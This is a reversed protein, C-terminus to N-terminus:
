ALRPFLRQANAGLIKRKASQTLGPRDVAAQAGDPFAVGIHPYDTAFLWIDEGLEQVCHAVYREGPDISHFLRGEALVDSPKRKLNPVLNPKSEYSEDLREILWPMWGASSEFIGARLKSFREFVGGGILASLATMGGWPQYVARIIFGAHDLETAGPGNPSRLVGGHVLIPLDLDQAREFLPHLVPTDLLKGDPCLPPVLVGALNSDQEAWHTVEQISAGIDRMTAIAVWRLRGRSGACYNSMYRHHARHLASEFGVDRLICYSAAHSPFIVSADIGARDMDKLRLAPEWNVERPIATQHTLRTETPREAGFTDYVGLPRWEDSPEIIAMPGMFLDTPQGAARRKAVASSLREFAERYEPDINDRYTRDVDLYERFHSDADIVTFGQYSM